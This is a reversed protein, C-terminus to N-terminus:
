TSVKMFVAANPRRHMGARPTARRDFVGPIRGGRAKRVPRRSARPADGYKHFAASLGAPIAVRDAALVDRAVRAEVRDEVRATETSITTEIQLGIVSDAPIVLEEVVPSRWSSQQEIEDIPQSEYVPYPNYAPLPVIASEAPPEVMVPEPAPATAVTRNAPKNTRRPERPAAPFTATGSVKIPSSVADKAPAEPVAVFPTEVVVAESTEVPGEWRAELGGQFAETIAPGPHVASANHRLALYSGGGAAAVCAFALLAVAIPKSLM